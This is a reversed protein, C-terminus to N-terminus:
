APITDDCDFGWSRLKANVSRAASEVDDGKTGASWQADSNLRYGTRWPGLASLRVEGVAIGNVTRRVFYPADDLVPEWPLIKM